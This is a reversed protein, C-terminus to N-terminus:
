PYRESLLWAHIARRGAAAGRREAMVVLTNYYVINAIISFVNNHSTHDIVILLGSTRPPEATVAM